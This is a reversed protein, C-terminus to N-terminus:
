RNAEKAKKGTGKKSEDKHPKPPTSLAKRIGRLFRDEAGPDDKIEPRDVESKQRKPTKAM